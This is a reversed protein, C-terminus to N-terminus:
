MTRPAGHISQTGANGMLIFGSYDTGEPWDRPMVDRFYLHVRGPDDLAFHSMSALDPLGHFHDLDSLLVALPAFKLVSCFAPKRGCGTEFVTGFDRLVSIEPYPYLWYHVHWDDALPRSMDSVFERLREDVVSTDPSLKAALLHGVIGRLLRAPKTDFSVRAPLNLPSKLYNTVEACLSGITPDYERGLASNCERCISRIKYGNQSILPRDEQPRGSIATMASTLLVPSVNGASSPPIHDYTLERTLKCITCPGVKERKHKIYRM